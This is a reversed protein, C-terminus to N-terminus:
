EDAEYAAVTVLHLQHRSDMFGAHKAGSLIVASAAAVLCVEPKSYTM